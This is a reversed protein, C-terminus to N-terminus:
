VLTLPGWGPTRRAWREYPTKWRALGSWDVDPLSPAPETANPLSNYFLSPTKTNRASPMSEWAPVSPRGGHGPKLQPARGSTLSALAVRKKCLAGILITNTASPLTRLQWSVNQPYHSNFHSILAQDSLDWRRSADDAMANVPGPIYHHRAVYGHNRQHIANIRLLYSRAAVSTASGKTAWAVAAQNDSAIWMTREKTDRHSVLVDKHAIAGTLELDSISIMGHPNDSTVLAAAIHDPYRQRWLIPPTTPDLTDFWVGGMGVQCADCAGVDSPYTPVLEPLRTPREHLSQLLTLFDHALHHISRTVRIRHRDTHRLAEHLMSFLGRSGPLAPSMSRLEGLVQHWKSVPLRKNPPLLWTLIEKLREFRHKPLHLTLTESDLDWGLIRKFTSWCADGKLMKKTSAPEKRHPPDDDALPRMVRDIATLTARMVKDRQRQTQALLLFDDVYVDVSAVPPRGKGALTSPTPTALRRHTLDSEADDPPTSAVTELRHATNLDVQPGARLMQNALDCATEAIVCFYPPSEVWGMPLALPFAILPTSNPSTPLIVGLKPVDHYQVWVRYFGDAVDIKSMYVPGYRADAHVLTTFVRQLARGFQMAERPAWPLTEANLGSYTYDVILRPRRDRQPVVGLPSVRLNPWDAVMDYPLVVWYGQQCFDLMEQAVFAREGESSQHPGRLVAEDRRERTWPATATPVSAGRTALHYLLRAARHPLRRVSAQLNSKGRFKLVFRRWGLKRVRQAYELALKGM